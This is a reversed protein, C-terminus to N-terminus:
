NIKLKKDINSLQTAINSLRGGSINLSIDKNSKIEKIRDSITKLRNLVNSASLSLNISNKGSIDKLSSNIKNISDIADKSNVDVKIKKSGNGLSDLSKKAKDIEKIISNADAKIKANLEIDKEM